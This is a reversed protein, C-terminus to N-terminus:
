GRLERRARAMTEDDIRLPDHHCPYGPEGRAMARDSPAACTVCGPTAKPRRLRPKALYDQWELARKVQGRTATV